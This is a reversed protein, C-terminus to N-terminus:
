NQPFVRFFVLIVLNKLARGYYVWLKLQSIMYQKGLDLQLWYAPNEPNSENKVQTQDNGVVFYDPGGSTKIGDVVLAPSRGTGINGKYTVQTTSTTLKQVNSGSAYVPIGIKPIMGLLMFIALIAPLLRSWIRKTVFQKM